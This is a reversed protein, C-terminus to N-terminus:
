AERHAEQLPFGIAIDGKAFRGDVIEAGVCDERMGPQCVIVFLEAKLVHLCTHAFILSPPLLDLETRALSRSVNKSVEPYIGAADVLVARLEGFGNIGYETPIPLSSPAIDIECIDRGIIPPLCRLLAAKRPL